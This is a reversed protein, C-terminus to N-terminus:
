NASITTQGVPRGSEDVATTQTLPLRFAERAIYVKENAFIAEAPVSSWDITYPTSLLGGPASIPIRPGSITVTVVSSGHKSYRPVMIQVQSTRKWVHLPRGDAFNATVTLEDLNLNPIPSNRTSLELFGYDVTRKFFDHIGPALYVTGYGFIAALAAAGGAISLNIKGATASPLDAAAVAQSGTGFLIMSIGLIALIFVFASHTQDLLVLGCYIFFGGLLIFFAPSSFFSKFEDYAQKVSGLQGHQTAHLAIGYLLSVAGLFAALLGFGLNVQSLQFCTTVQAPTSCPVVRSILAYAGYVFACGLLIFFLPSAVFRQLAQRGGDWGARIWGM